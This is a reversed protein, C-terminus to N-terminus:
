WLRSRNDPQKRLRDDKLLNLPVYAMSCQTPLRLQSLPIAINQTNGHTLIRQLLM